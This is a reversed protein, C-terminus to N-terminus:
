TTTSWMDLGLIKVFARMAGQQLLGDLGKGVARHHGVHSMGLPLLEVLEIALSMVSNASVMTMAPGTWIALLNGELGDHVPTDLAGGLGDVVTM